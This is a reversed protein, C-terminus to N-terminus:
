QYERKHTEHLQESQYFSQNIYNPTTSSRVLRDPSIPEYKRVTESQNTLKPPSGPLPELACHAKGLQSAFRVNDMMKFVQNWDDDMQWGDNSEMGHDMKSAGISAQKVVGLGDQDMGVCSWHSGNRIAKGVRTGNRGSTPTRDHMLTLRAVEPEVDAVNSRANLGFEM